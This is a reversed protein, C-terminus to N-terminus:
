FQGARYYFEAAFCHTHSTDLSVNEALKALMGRFQRVLMDGKSGMVTAAPIIQERIRKEEAIVAVSIDADGPAFVKRQELFDCLIQFKALGKNGPDAALLFQMAQRSAITDVNALAVIM